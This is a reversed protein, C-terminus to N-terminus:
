DGNVATPDREPQKDLRSGSALRTVLLVLYTVMMSLTLLFLPAYSIRFRGVDLSHVLMITFANGYVATALAAVALFPLRFASLSNRAFILIASAFFFLQIWLSFQAYWNSIVQGWRLGRTQPGYPKVNNLQQLYSVYVSDSKLYATSDARPLVQKDAALEEEIYQAQSHEFFDGGKPYLFVLLQKRLKALMKGPSGVWTRLYALYCFRKLDTTDWHEQRALNWFYNDPGFVIYEPNFGLTHYGSPQQKAKALVAKLSQYFMGDASAPDDILHHKEANAVIQPAHYSVLVFPPFLPGFSDKRFGLCIPTAWFVAVLAVGFVFPLVRRSFPSRGLLGAALPLVAFGLAFGWSPKLLLIAYSLVLSGAGFLVSQWGRHTQWRARFYATVCFAYFFVFFALVGEPRIAIEFLAENPSFLYLLVALSGIVFSVLRTLVTSVNFFALWLRFTAWMLVGAALGLIEQIRVIWSFDRGLKLIAALIAPYFWDRGYTQQFGAGDLWSLAPNLYGWSDRDPIPVSPLRSRIVVGGIIGIFLLIFAAVDIWRSFTKSNGM